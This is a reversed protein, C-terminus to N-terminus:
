PALELVAEGFQSGHQGGVQRCPVSRIGASADQILSAVRAADSACSRWVVTSTSTTPPPIVPAPTARSAALRPSLTARSSDCSRALPVLPQLELSTCPPM